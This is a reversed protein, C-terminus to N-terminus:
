GAIVLGDRLVQEIPLTLAFPLDAKDYYGPNSKLRLSHPWGALESQTMNGTTAKYVRKGDRKAKIAQADVGLLGLEPSLRNVLELWGECTHSTSGKGAGVIYHVAVHCCEHLLVEYAAVLEGPVGRMILNSHMRIVPQKAERPLTYGLCRGYPTMAVQLLPVPLDGGFHERNVHEFADYYFTGLAGYYHQAVQRMIALLEAQKSFDLQLTVRETVQLQTNSTDKGM